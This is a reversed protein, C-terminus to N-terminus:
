AMFIPGINKGINQRNRVPLFCRGSKGIQRKRNLDSRDLLHIPESEGGGVVPPVFIFHKDPVLQLVTRQYVGRLGM